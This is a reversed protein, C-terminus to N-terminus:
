SGKSQIANAGPDRPENFMIEDFNSFYSALESKSRSAGDQSRLTRKEDQKVAETPEKVPIAPQTAPETAKAIPTTKRDVTQQVTGQDRPSNVQTVADKVLTERFTPEKRSYTRVSKPRSLNQSFIKQKKTFQPIDSDESPDRTRKIAAPLTEFGGGRQSASHYSPMSIAAM